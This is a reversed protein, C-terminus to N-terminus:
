GIVELNKIGVPQRGGADWRVYAVRDPIFWGDIVGTRGSDRGRVKIRVVPEAPRNAARELKAAIRNAPDM